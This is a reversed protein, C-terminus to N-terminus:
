PSFVLGLDLVRAGDERRFTALSAALNRGLPARVAGELRGARDVLDIRTPATWSLWLMGARDRRPAAAGPFVDLYGYGAESIATTTGDNRVTWGRLSLRPAIQWAADVGAGALTSVLVSSAREHWVAVEVRVRRRDDFALAAEDLLTRSETIGAARALYTPVRMADGAGLHLDWREGLRRRYSFSPLLAFERLSADGVRERDREAALEFRLDDVDSARESAIYLAEEDSSGAVAGSTGREDRARVGIEWPLVGHARLAAQLALSSGAAAAGRRSAPASQADLALRAVVDAIRGPRQLAISAGDARGADARLALWDARLLGDDYRVAALSRALSGDRDDAVTAALTRGFRLSQETGFARAADSGAIVDADFVGGSARDGYRPADLPDDVTLAGTAHRPVLASVDAGDSRRYFGIGDVAVGGRGGGLGRDAITGNGLVMPIASALASLAGAPLAALDAPSPVREAVAGYRRVIAIVPAGPTVPARLPALYAGEITVAAPQVAADVAFTGDAATRDTGVVAGSADRAAVRAGAVVRGDQDRVAGFVLVNAAAPTAWLLLGALIGLAKLVAEHGRHIMSGHGGTDPPQRQCEREREGSEAAGCCAGGEEAVIGDRQEDRARLRIQEARDGLLAARAPCAGRLTSRRGLM